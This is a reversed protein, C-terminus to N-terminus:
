LGLHKRHREVFPDHPAIYDAFIAPIIFVVLLVTIPVLPLERARSWLSQKATPGFTSETM